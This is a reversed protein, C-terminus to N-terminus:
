GEPKEARLAKKEQYKKLTFSNLGITAYADILDEIPRPIWEDYQALSKQWEDMPSVTVEPLKFTEGDYLMGCMVSDPAQIFGEAENPQKQVVKGNEIKVYAM